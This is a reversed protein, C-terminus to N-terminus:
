YLTVSAVAFDQLGCLGVNVPTGTVTGRTTLVRPQCTRGFRGDARRPVGGQVHRPQPRVHRPVQLVHPLRHRVAVRPFVSEDGLQLAVRVVHVPRPLADHVGDCVNDAVQRINRGSLLVVSEGRLGEM